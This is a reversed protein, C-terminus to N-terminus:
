AAKTKIQEIYALLVPVPRFWEGRIRADDFRQHLAYEVGRDGDMVALVVLLHPTSTALECVRADVDKATGIKIAGMGSEQIFYVKYEGLCRIRLQEKPVPHPTPRRSWTSNRWVTAEINPDIRHSFFWDRMCPFPFVRFDRVSVKFMFCRQPMGYEFYGDMTKTGARKELLERQMELVFGEYPALRRFDEGSM